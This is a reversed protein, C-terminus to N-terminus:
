ELASRGPRAGAPARDHARGPSGGARAAHAAPHCAGRTRQSARGSPPRCCRRCRCSGARPMSGCCQSWRAARRTGPLSTGAGGASASVAEGAGYHDICQGHGVWVDETAAVQAVFTDVLATKGIGPEGAIVGVQRTGQRATTWWQALQALAADRGVFIGAPAQLRLRPAPALTGVSRPREPSAPASVPAIFRYGRGHVTEIFRPTRAQDGLVRRLQRIAVTLVSESVVTEPWVAALLADKTM